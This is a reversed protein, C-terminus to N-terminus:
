GRPDDGCANVLVDIQSVYLTLAGRQRGTGKFVNGPLAKLCYVMWLLTTNFVNPMWCCSFHDQLSFPDNLPWSHYGDVRFNEGIGPPDADLPIGLKRHINPNGTGAM